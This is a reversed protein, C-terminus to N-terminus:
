DVVDRLNAGALKARSRDVGSLRAGSLNADRFDAGDVAADCLNAGSLKAARLSAGRLDVRRLDADNAVARQLNANQLSAGGLKAGNLKAQRLQARVLSAEEFDAGEATANSLDADDLLSQRATTAILSARVLSASRLSCRDLCGRDIEAGEWVSREGVAGALDVGPLTAGTANAGGLKASRLCVDEGVIETLTADTLDAREFRAADIRAGSLDVSVLSAEEFDARAWRGQSLSARDCRARRFLADDGSVLTMTAGSLDAGSLDAGGLTARVLDARSLDAGALKAGSLDAGVLKAGSLKAGTLDANVLRAGSLDAGSLRAERLDVGSLDVGSLPAGIAAEGARIRGLLQQRVGDPEPLPGAQAAAPEGAALAVAPESAVPAVAPESAVPAVAPESAVAPAAPLAPESAAPGVAPASSAPEVVPADAAFPLADRRLDPIPAVATQGSAEDDDPELSVLTPVAFASSRGGPRDVAQEARSAPGASAAPGAGFPLAAGLEDGSVTVTEDNSWDLATAPPPAPEDLRGFPLGGLARGPSSRRPTPAWPLVGGSLRALEAEDFVMTSSSEELEEEAPSEVGAVVQGEWPEAPLPCGGRWLLTATLRDMDVFLRDVVLDLTRSQDGRTAILRARAVSGPLQSQLRTFTAHMGDIVIWEDGRLMPLRQDPPSAQFYDLGMDDPVELVGDKVFPARSRISRRRAPWTSPIPGLGAPMWPESPHVVNPLASSGDPRRGAPNETGPGGVARDYGLPLREFPTPESRVGARDGYVHLTKDVAPGDGGVFLRVSMSPVTRNAPACAHGVVIVEPQALVPILDSPHDASEDLWLEAGPIPEALADPVLAFAAKLVVTLRLEGRHRWALTTGVAGGYASLPIPSVLSLV